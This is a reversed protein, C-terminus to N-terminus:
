ELSKGATEKGVVLWYAAVLCGIVWLTFNFYLMTKANLLAMAGVLLSNALWAVATIFGAASARIGTPFLEGELVAVTGYVWESFIMNM